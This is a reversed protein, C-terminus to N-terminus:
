LITKRKLRKWEARWQGRLGRQGNELQGAAVGAVFATSACCNSQYFNDRLWISAARKDRLDGLLDQIREASSATRRAPKGLVPAATEAAYRLRKARIRIKHLQADSAGKGAKAVKRRLARSREGVLAPLLASSDIDLSPGDHGRTTGTFLIPPAERAAHVRDLLDIYRRSNIADAVEAAAQARQSLLREKLEETEPGNCRLPDGTDTLIQSMVDIDRVKGLKRGIWALEDTSHATWVPDLFPAFTRLDSRLRRAAVRAQHIDHPTPQEPDIRLRFDHDLMRDLSSGIAAMITASIKQRRQRSNSKPQENSYGVSEELAISVESRSTPKAGLNELCDVVSTAIQRKEASVDVELQRFEAVKRTGSTVEILDDDLEGWGDGHEQGGLVLRRRTTKVEAVRRLESRRLLGRLIVLAQDPVTSPDGPWSLEERQIFLDPPRPPLKLTWTQEDTGTGDTIARHWLTLNRDGLRRDATDWYATRLQQEPLRETAGILSRMDPPDFDRDM